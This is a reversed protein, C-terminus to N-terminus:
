ELWEKAEDDELVGRWAYKNLFEGMTLFSITFDSSAVSRNRSKYRKTIARFFYKLMEGTYDAEPDVLSEINVLTVEKTSDSALADHELRFYLEVWDGHVITSAQKFIVGSPSAGVGQFSGGRPLLIYVAHTAQNPKPEHIVPWEGVDEDLTVQRIISFSVDVPILSCGVTPHIDDFVIRKTKFVDAARCQEQGLWHTGWGCLPPPGRSDIFMCRVTDFTKGSYWDSEILSRLVEVCEGPIHRGITVSHVHQLCQRKTQRRSKGALIPASSDLPPASGQEDAETHLQLEPEGAVPEILDPSIHFPKRSEIGCAAKFDIAIDHYLLPAAINNFISSVRMCAALAGKDRRAHYLIRVVLENPM